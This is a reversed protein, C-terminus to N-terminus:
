ILGDTGKALRSATGIYDLAGHHKSSASASNGASHSM